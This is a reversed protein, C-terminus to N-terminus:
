FAGPNRSHALSGEQEAREQTPNYGEEEKNIHTGALCARLRSTVLKIAASFMQSDDSTHHLGSDMEQGHHELFAPHHTHALSIRLCVNTHWIHIPNISPNVTKM